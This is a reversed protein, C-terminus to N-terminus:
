PAWEALDVERVVVEAMELDEALGESVVAKGLPPDLDEVVEVSAGVMEWWM